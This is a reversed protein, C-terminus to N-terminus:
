REITMYLMTDGDYGPYVGRAVFGAAGFARVARANDPDPDIQLRVVEPWALLREILLRVVARGVGRNRAGAAGIALDLGFTESPVGFSQWFPDCNAHYVQAFGVTQNAVVICFASVYDHTLYERLEDIDPPDDWWQAVEGERLLQAMAELDNEALAVLGVAAPDGISHDVLRSSFRPM